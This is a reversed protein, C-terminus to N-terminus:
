RRLPQSVGVTLTGHLLAALVRIRNFNAATGWVLLVIEAALPSFNVMNHPRTSFINSSLLNKGMTSVYQLQSSIARCIQQITGLHRTKADNKRATNEALQV